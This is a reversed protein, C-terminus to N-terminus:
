QHFREGLYIFSVSLSKKEEEEGGGRRFTKHKRKRTSNRRLKKTGIIAPGNRIPRMSPVWMTVKQAQIRKLYSKGERKKGEREERGEEEPKREACGVELTRRREGDENKM